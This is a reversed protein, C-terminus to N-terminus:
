SKVFKKKIAGVSENLISLNFYAPNFLTIGRKRLTIYLALTIFSETFMWNCATAIYGWRQVTFYNACVSLVAGCAVIRFLSKDMKLNLMVQIGFINSLILILPMFALIRVVANGPAFKNGYLLTLAFPGLILLGFGIVIAIGIILPLMKQTTQIGKEKSEGFAKGIFPYLAQSLPATVVAQVVSLLRIGASYYGVQTSSQYIGLIVINSTTYLSGIVLSFFVIKDEWLYMFCRKLSIKIFVLEYRNIAWVFSFVAVLIQIAALLLPQYVYDSKQRIVFFISFTFLLKTALNFIAIKPLDRMAMFLWNQTLLTSICILFTYIMLQKNDRFQPVAYLLVSFVILSIFFLINQAYFVESFVKSRHAKNDPDQAIKRSASLDFGFGIFLTFYAIFSAAFNILGFKDPGIIRSVYPVSIIPLISNAAQVISLSFFSKSLNKKESSM